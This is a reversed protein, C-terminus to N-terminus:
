ETKMYMCVVTMASAYPSYAFVLQGGCSYHQFEKIIEKSFRILTSRDSSPELRKTGGGGGKKKKISM